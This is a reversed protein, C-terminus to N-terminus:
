VSARCQRRPVNKDAVLVIDSIKAPRPTSRGQKLRTQRRDSLAKLYDKYWLDWFRDLLQTAEKYWDFLPHSSLSLSSHDVSPLQLDVEPSIFDIRRLIRPVTSIDGTATIPRFNLVGEIETVLTQLHQLPLLSRSTTKRYVPKFLGGLREYFGGKWLSLSTIFKWVIKKNAFFSSLREVSSRTTAHVKHPYMILSETFLHDPCPSDSCTISISLQNRCRIYGEESVYINYGELPLNDLAADSERYHEIIHLNEAAKIEEASILRSLSFELSQFYLSSTSYPSL